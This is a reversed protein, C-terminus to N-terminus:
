GMMGPTSTTSAMAWAPPMMMIASIGSRSLLQHDKGANLPGLEAARYRGAVLQADLHVHQGEPGAGAAHLALASTSPLSAQSAVSVQWTTGRFRSRARGVASAPLWGAASVAASHANM